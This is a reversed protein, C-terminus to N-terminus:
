SFMCSKSASGFTAVLKVLKPDGRCDFALHLLDGISVRRVATRPPHSLNRLSSLCCGSKKKKTKGSGESARPAGVTGVRVSRARRANKILCWRSQQLDESSQARSGEGPTQSIAPKSRQSTTQRVPSQGGSASQSPSRTQLRGKQKRRTARANGECFWFRAASYPTDASDLLSSTRAESLKPPPADEPLTCHTTPPEM